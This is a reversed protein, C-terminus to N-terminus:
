VLHISRAPLALLMASEFEEAWEEKLVAVVKFDTETYMKQTAEFDKFCLLQYDVGEKRSRVFAMAKRPDIRNGTLGKPDLPLAIKFFTGLSKIDPIFEDCIWGVKNLNIYLSRLNDFEIIGRKIRSGYEMAILSSYIVLQQGLDRGQLEEAVALRITYSTKENTHYGVEFITARVRADDDLLIVGHGYEEFRHLDFACIEAALDPSYREELFAKIAPIDENHYLRLELGYAAATSEIQRRWEEAFAFKDNWFQPLPIDSQECIDIPKQFLLPGDHKWEPKKLQFNIIGNKQYLFFPTEDNQEQPLLQASM